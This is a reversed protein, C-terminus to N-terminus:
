GERVSEVVHSRDKM